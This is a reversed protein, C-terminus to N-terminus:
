QHAADGPGRLARLREQYEETALEGRAYREDLIDRARSTTPAGAAGAGRTVGGGVARVAVVAVVAVGVFLFLWFVWMWAMGPGSGM